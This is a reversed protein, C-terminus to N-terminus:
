ANQHGTIAPEEFEDVRNGGGHAGHREGRKKGRENSQKADVFGLLNREEPEPHKKVQQCHDDFLDIPHVVGQEFGGVRESGPLPVRQPQHKARRERRDERREPDEIVDPPGVHDQGLHQISTLTHAVHDLGRALHQIEIAHVRSNDGDTDSCEQEPKQQRKQLSNKEGPALRTGRQGSTPCRHGAGSSVQLRGLMSGLFDFIATRWTPRDNTEASPPLTSARSFMLKSISSAYVRSPRSMPSNRTRSPGDPHPLDVRSRSIAPNSRASLPSTRTFSWNTCPGPLSRPM